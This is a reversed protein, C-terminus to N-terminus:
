IICLLLNVGFVRIIKLKYHHNYIRKEEEKQQQTVM